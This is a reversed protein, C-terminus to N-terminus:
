KRIESLGTLVAFPYKKCIVADDVYDIQKDSFIGREVLFIVGKSLKVRISYETEGNELLEKTSYIM